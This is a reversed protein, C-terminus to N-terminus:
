SSKKKTHDVIIKQIEVIINNDNEKCMKNLNNIPYAEEIALLEKFHVIKNFLSFVFIDDFIYKPSHLLLRPSL